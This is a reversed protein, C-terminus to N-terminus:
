GTEQQHIPLLQLDKRRRLQIGGCHLLEVFEKGAGSGAMAGGILGGLLGIPGLLVGGALAGATAGGLGITRGELHEIKIWACATSCM